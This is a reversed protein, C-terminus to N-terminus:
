VAVSSCLGDDDNCQVEDESSSSYASVIQPMAVVPPEDPALNVPPVEDDATLDIIDPQIDVIESGRVVFTGQFQILSLKDMWSHSEPNRASMEVIDDLEHCLLRALGDRVVARIPKPMFERM